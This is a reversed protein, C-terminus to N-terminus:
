YGGVQKLFYACKLKMGRVSIDNTLVRATIAEEWSGMSVTALHYLPFLELQVVTGGQTLFDKIEAYDAQPHVNEILM